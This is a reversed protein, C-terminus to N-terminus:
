PALTCESSKATEIPLERQVEDRVSKRMQRRQGIPFRKSTQCTNCTVVLIDAHAKKQQRSKNEIMETSTIGPILHNDCRKCLSHKINQSLRIQSKMSISRMQSLLLRSMASPTSSQVSAQAAAATAQPCGDQNQDNKLEGEPQSNANISTGSLQQAQLFISAQYLYSMRSHVNKQPISVPKQAKVKAMALIDDALSEVCSIYYQPLPYETHNHM